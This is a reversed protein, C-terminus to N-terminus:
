IFFEGFFKKPFERFKRHSNRWIAESIRGFIGRPIGNSITIPTRESIGISVEGCFTGLIGSSPGKPIGRSKEPFEEM